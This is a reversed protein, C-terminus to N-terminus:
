PFFHGVQVELSNGPVAGGVVGLGQQPQSLGTGFAVPGDDSPISCSNHPKTEGLLQSGTWPIHPPIKFSVPAASPGFSLGHTQAMSSSTVMEDPAAVDVGICMCEDGNMNCVDTYYTKDTEDDITTKDDDDDTQLRQQIHTTNHQAERKSSDGCREPRPHWGTFNDDNTCNSDPLKDMPDAGIVSM